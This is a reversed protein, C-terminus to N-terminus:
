EEAKEACRVCLRAFSLIELRAKSIPEGCVECNGYHGHELKAIARKVQDIEARTSNGLYDLVEDNEVQIAQEESDKALPEQTHKVDDTIRALRDDLEELMDILTSRIDDSETM